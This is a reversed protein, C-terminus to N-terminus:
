ARVAVESRALQRRIAAIMLKQLPNRIGGPRWTRVYKNRYPDFHFGWPAALVKGRDLLIKLAETAAVGACLQCAMPTSPGRREALNVKTPDALYTRQLMAPSVGVLFRIAQESEAFGELGFYEEFTMRGPLFTIASVGMGFPVALTTPIGLRACAAYTARRAAFAFFDLGDVYIAAEELFTDLNETTVGNPFPRIDIEPNIDRAMAILVDLKPRGITSVMAGVQRNFNVLEFRDYEALSFQGVGLRALTLLHYGGAGGLGAIAIRKRRLLGLETDTIWGINRSFAESYDFASSAAGMKM